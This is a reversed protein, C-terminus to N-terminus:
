GKYRQLTRQIEKKSINFVKIKLMTDTESNYVLHHLGRWSGELKTFEEHHMIANLQKSLKQDIASILEEIYALVDDGRVIEGKLAEEALTHVASRVASEAESTKPKFEQSLLRDFESLEATEAAAGPQTSTQTAMDPEPQRHDTIRFRGAPRLRRAVT